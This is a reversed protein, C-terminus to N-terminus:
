SSPPFEVNVIELYYRQGHNERDYEDKEWGQLLWMGAEDFDGSQTNYVITGENADLVQADWYGTVGSPKKTLNGLIRAILPIMAGVYIELRAM